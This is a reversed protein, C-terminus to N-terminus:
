LFVAPSVGFRVALARIEDPTLPRAGTLVAEANSASGLESLDAGELGQEEILQLLIDRGSVDPIAQHQEEYSRIVAGLTDLMGYLPHREDTGVQDILANLREVAADYDAEDRLVFIPALPVWHNQIDAPLMTMEEM